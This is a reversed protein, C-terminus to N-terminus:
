AENRPVRLGPPALSIAPARKGGAGLVNMGLALLGMQLIGVAEVPSNVNSGVQVGQPGVTVTVTPPQAPPGGNPEQSM